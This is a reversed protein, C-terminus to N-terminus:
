KNIDCDIDLRINYKEAYADLIEDADIQENRNMAVVAQNKLTADATSNRVDTKMLKLKSFSREASSTTVTVTSYISYLIQLMPYSKTESILEVFTKGKLKPAMYQSFSRVEKKLDYLVSDSNPRGIVGGYIDVLEVLDSEQVSGINDPHLKTIAFCKQERAELRGNLSDVFANIMASYSAFMRNEDEFSLRKSRFIEEPPTLSNYQELIHNIITQFDNFGRPKTTKKKLKESCKEIKDMANKLDINKSQLTVVLPKLDSMIDELYVLNTIFEFSQIEIRMKKAKAAAVSEEWQEIELFSKFIFKLRDKFTSIATLREIQRTQACHKLKKNKGAHKEYVSQRKSYRLYFIKSSDKNSSNTLCLDVM